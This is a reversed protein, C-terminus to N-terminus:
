RRASRSQRSSRRASAKSKSARPKKQRPSAKPKAAARMIKLVQAGQQLNSFVICREPAPATPDIVAMVSRFRMGDHFGGRLAYGDMDKYGAVRVLWPNRGGPLEIQQVGGFHIHGAAYLHAGDQCWIAEKLPGHVPSFQSRGKFDHAFNGKFEAGNPSVFCLKAAWESVPITVKALACMRRIIEGGENWEDHNGLLVAGWKIGAGTLFWEAYQRATSQSAEQNGFLRALRGVWNNTTDGINIAYLGDTEKLIAIDQLLAPWNCGDDDLHPDGILAIGYPLNETVKIRQWTAADHHAKKREFREVSMAILREVPLRPDPLEPFLLGPPGATYRTEKDLRERFTTRSVGAARAAAAKNNGHAALLEHATTM